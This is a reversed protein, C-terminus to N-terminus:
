LSLQLFNKLIDVGEKNLVVAMVNPMVDKLKNMIDGYEFKDDDDWSMWEFEVGPHYDILKIVLYKNHM